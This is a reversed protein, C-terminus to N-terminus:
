EQRSETSSEPPLVVLNTANPLKDGIWVPFIDVEPEEEFIKARSLVFTLVAIVILTIALSFVIHHKEIWRMIPHSYWWYLKKRREDSLRSPIHDSEKGAANLLDLTSQIEAAQRKCDECRRIHERVLESRAKGLERSMYDFLLDRIDECRVQSQGKSNDNGSM